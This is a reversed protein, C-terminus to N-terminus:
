PGQAALRPTAAFYSLPRVRPLPRRKLKRLSHHIFPSMGDAQVAPIRLVWFPSRYPDSLFLLFSAAVTALNRVVTDVQSGVRKLRRTKPQM